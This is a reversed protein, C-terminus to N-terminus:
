EIKMYIDYSIHFDCIIINITQYSILSQLINYIYYLKISLLVITVM